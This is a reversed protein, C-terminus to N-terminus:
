CRIEARSFDDTLIPTSEHCAGALRVVGVGAMTDYLSEPDYACPGVLVVPGLDYWCDAYIQSTAYLRLEVLQTVAKIRVQFVCPRAGLVIASGTEVTPVCPEVNKTGPLADSWDIRLVVAVAEM